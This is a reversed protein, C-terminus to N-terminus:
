ILLSAVTSCVHRAIAQGNALSDQERTYVSIIYTEQQSMVIGSSNMAWLGDPGPLWGDKMAAITGDPATDGVGVQQDPEIHEMWYFALDRHARTLIKGEYLLTLLNVMALPTILSYGWANPDPNLGTIGISQLYSGVGAAGGIEGYYLASASDNNSNEIMTQLLNMEQDTPERGQQEIMNFFTLMIAVKMSSGTIFQAEDNYTYYQRHTIDYVVLDVNGGISSLYAALSPSLADISAWAPVAGPSTFTLATASVWGSYTKEPVAWQVHYWLMGSKWSTDGVLSLPFDQQVHVSARGAPATLITTTSQTWIPQQVKIEVSPPGFTHLYAFGTDLRQVLPQGDSDLTNQDLIVGDCLFIQVLMHHPSGNRTVTFALAPTLPLGFDVRWGDPAIDARNIYNWIPSPVVYGVDENARTGTKIFTGQAKSSTPQMNSSNIAKRLDVYTLAVGNNAIAARSGATLLAQLLPLRVVGTQPDSIGNNVLATVPDSSSHAPQQVPLLLAGSVFFQIWGQSTPFAVTLPLGLSKSGSHTAYFHNFLPSVTIKQPVSSSFPFTPETIESDGSWTSAGNITSVPIPSQWQRSLALGSSLLMAGVVFVALLILFNKSIFLSLLRNIQVQQETGQQERMGVEKRALVDSLIERSLPQM